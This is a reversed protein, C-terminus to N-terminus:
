KLFGFLKTTWKKKGEESNITKEANNITNVILAIIAKTDVGFSNIGDFYKLLKLVLSENNIKIIRPKCIIKQIKKELLLSILTIEDVYNGQAMDKLIARCFNFNDLINIGYSKIIKLFSVELIDKMRLLETTREQINQAAVQRIVEENYAMEKEKAYKIANYLLEFVESAINKDISEDDYLCNIIREKEATANNSKALSAIYGANSIRILLKVERNYKTNLQGLLLDNLLKRKIFAKIRYKDAINKLINIVDKNM